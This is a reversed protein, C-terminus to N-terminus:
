GTTAKGNRYIPRGNVVDGATHTYTIMYSSLQDGSVGTSAM